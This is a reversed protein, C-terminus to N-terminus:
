KQANWAAILTREEDTMNTMNGIPMYKTVVVTQYIQAKQASVQDVTELLIGKPPAAFGAQTPQAAHCGACREKMVTMVQEMAVPAAGAPAATPRPAMLVALGILMACAVAPLPWKNQGLHRLVFFQRILVGAFMIVGLIAWGYKNGYTMPYHNSLMTFLVPLTFYTNHTSRLKGIQGPRPDPEKGARIEKIMQKPGPIIYFFVNWTMMTAMMAGVLIFAGRGSYIHFLVWASIVIFVLIAGALANENKITKCLTDYVFWGGVIFAISIAIAAGQSLDMVSKDILYANAGIWYVIALMGVGSLWTTYSPWKSWHLDETLPEGKPGTLFKQSLYFGGGHVGWLEGYVGRKRDEEKKAPTLSLDLMIFYFSSGIWAIGVILHLWRVLLNAWDLLYSEM